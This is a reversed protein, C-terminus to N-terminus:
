FDPIEIHMKVEKLELYNCKYNIGVYITKGQVKINNGMYQAYKCTHCQGENICKSGKKM